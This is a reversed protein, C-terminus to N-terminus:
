RRRYREPDTKVEPALRGGRYEYDSWSGPRWVGWMRQGDWWTADGRARRWVFQLWYTTQTDEDWKFTWAFLRHWHKQHEHDDLDCQDDPLSKWRMTDVKGPM